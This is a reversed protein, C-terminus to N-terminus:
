MKVKAWVRIKNMEKLVIIKASFCLLFNSESKYRQTQTYILTMMDCPFCPSEKSEDDIQKIIYLIKHKYIKFKNM